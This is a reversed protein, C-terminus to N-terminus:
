LLIHGQGANELCQHLVKSALRLQMMTTFIQNFSTVSCSIYSKQLCHGQGLNELYASIVNKNGAM